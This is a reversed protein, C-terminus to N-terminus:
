IYPVDAAWFWRCHPAKGLYVFMSDYGAPQKSDYARMNKYLSWVKSRSPIIREREYIVKYVYKTLYMCSTYRLIGYVMCYGSHGEKAVCKMAIGHHWKGRDTVISLCKQVGPRVISKECHKAWHGDATLTHTWFTLFTSINMGSTQLYSLKWSFFVSNGAYHEMTKGWLVEGFPMCFWGDWWWPGAMRVKTYPKRLADGPRVVQPFAHVVASGLLFPNFTDNSM